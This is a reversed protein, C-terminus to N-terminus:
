VVAEYEGTDCFRTPSLGVLLAEERGDLWLGDPRLCLLLGEAGVARYPVLRCRRQLEPWPALARLATAADTEPPPLGDPFLPALARREAILVHLGTVPDCLTNGTDRLAFFVASRGLLTLRM